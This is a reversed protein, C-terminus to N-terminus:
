FSHLRYFCLSLPLSLINYPITFCLFIHYLLIYRNFFCPRFVASTDCILSVALSMLIIGALILFKRNRLIYGIISEKGNLIDTGTTM